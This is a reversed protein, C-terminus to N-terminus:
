DEKFDESNLPVDEVAYESLFRTTEESTIGIDLKVAGEGIPIRGFNKAGICHEVLPYHLYGDKWHSMGAWAFPVRLFDNGYHIFKLNEVYFTRMKIENLKLIYTFYWDLNLVSKPFTKFAEDNCHATMYELWNVNKNNTYTIGFTWHHGKSHSWWMDLSFIEVENNQAYEKAQLLFSVVRDPSCCFLTDDADINWFHSICNERAHYFSTMHAWAAKQWYNDCVAQTINKTEKNIASTIFKPEKKRFSIRRCVEERLSEHDCVIICEGGPYYDVIRIWQQLNRFVYSDRRNIKLYFYTKEMDSKEMFDDDSITIKQPTNSSKVLAEGGERKTIGIDLGMVDDAIPICGRSKAGICYYLLPFMIKRKGYQYLGTSCPRAFFDNGYLIFQLNEFYFSAIKLGCISLYTFFIDIHVKNAKAFTEDELHAQLVELVKENERVYAIGFTWLNKNQLHKTSSQWIDLSFLDIGQKVAYEAANSLMKWTRQGSLCIHCVDADISWFDEIGNSVAHFFPTLHMFAANYWNDKCTNRVVKKAAESKDIPIFGAMNGQFRVAKELAAKVSESNYVLFYRVGKAGEFADVWRQVNRFVFPALFNVKM